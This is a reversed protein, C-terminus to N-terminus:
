TGGRAVFREVEKSLWGRRSCDQVRPFAVGGASMIAHRLESPHNEHLPRPRIAHINRLSAM